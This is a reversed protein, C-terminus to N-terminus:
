AGCADLTNELLMTVTMPGVGGPVPTIWAAQRSAADFDVDGKVRGDVRTTGVDIVVAGPKVHEATILGPQGAASILIDAQRCKAALDPTRSHCVTVTANEQLLLMALPKGVLASRGVIVAHKGDIDTGTSQLLRMVARPTCAVLGSTGSLLQGANAPHLGDVDKEPLVSNTIKNADLGAPLPLQVLVGDLVSDGNMQAVASLVDEEAADEPLHVVQSFIGVESCAREKNRVYVESAPDDGVLIVGLGPPRGMRDEYAAARRSIEKRTLAALAKGDITNNLM